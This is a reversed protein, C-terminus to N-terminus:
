SEGYISSLVQEARQLDLGDEENYALWYPQTLEQANNIMIDYNKPTVFYGVLQPTSPIPTERFLIWDVHSDIRAKRADHAALVARKARMQEQVMAELRHTLPSMALNKYNIFVRDFCGHLLDLASSVPKRTHMIMDRAWSGTVEAMLKVQPNMNVLSCLNGVTVWDSKVENLDVGWELPYRESLDVVKTMATRHDVGLLTVHQPLKMKPDSRLPNSPVTSTRSEGTM